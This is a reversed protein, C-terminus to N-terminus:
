GWFCYHKDEEIIKLFEKLTKVAPTPQYSEWKLSARLWFIKWHGSTKVFTAKAINSEIMQGPKEWHPRIEYIIVSQDEIKYSLDLQDRIDETPRNNEMFNEM